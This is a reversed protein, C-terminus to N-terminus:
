LSKEKIAVEIVRYNRAAYASLARVRGALGREVRGKAWLAM